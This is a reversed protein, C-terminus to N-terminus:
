PCRTTRRCSSAPAPRRTQTEDDQGREVLYLSGADAATIARSQWLIMELLKTIDRQASLAVGIKNLEHLEQSKRALADDLQQIM